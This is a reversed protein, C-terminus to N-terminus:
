GKFVFVRLVDVLNELVFHAKVPFLFVQVPFVRAVFLDVFHLQNLVVWRPLIQENLLQQQLVFDKESVSLDNEQESDKALFVQLRQLLEVLELSVFSGTEVEAVAEDCDHLRVELVKGEIEDGFVLLAELGFEDIFHVVEDLAELEGVGGLEDLENEAQDLEHAIDLNEEEFVFGELTQQYTEM